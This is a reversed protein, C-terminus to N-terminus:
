GERCWSVIEPHQLGLRELRVADNKSSKIRNELIGFGNKTQSQVHGCLNAHKLQREQGQRTAENDWL